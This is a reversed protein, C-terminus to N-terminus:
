IFKLFIFIHIKIIFIKKTFYYHGNNDIFIIRNIIKQTGNKYINIDNINEPIIIIKNIKSINLDLKSPSWPTTNDSFINGAYTQSILRVNDFKVNPQNTPLMSSNVDINIKSVQPIIINDEAYSFKAFITILLILIINIYNKM